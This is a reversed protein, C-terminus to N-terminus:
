FGGKVKNKETHYLIFCVRDKKLLFASGHFMPEVYADTNHRCSNNQQNKSQDEEAAPILPVDVFHLLELAFLLGHLCEVTFGPLQRVVLPQLGDARQSGGNCV